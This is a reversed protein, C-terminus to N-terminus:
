GRLSEWHQHIMVMALTDLECYRLLANFVRQRHEEDVDKFQMRVWAIMAAGGDTIKEGSGLEIEPMDDDLVIDDIHIPDLLKYPNIVKGNETQYLVKNLLSLGSYPKSYIEQLREGEQLVAPLVDKISNSGGMHVSYYYRLVVRQQDILERPEGESVLTDIWTILEDRDPEESHHLM